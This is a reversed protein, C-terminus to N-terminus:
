FVCECPLLEQSLDFLLEGDIAKKASAWFTAAPIKETAPIGAARMKEFRGAVDQLFVPAGASDKHIAFGIYDEAELAKQWIDKRKCYVIYWHQLGGKLCGQCNAHTFSCYTLPPAIGIDETSDIVYDASWLLPYDTRWGMSGMISSRRQIRATENSDFGYYICDTEKDANDKLWAMFPATKLRNTCLMHAGNSFAGAHMCVDFQDCDVVDAGDINAFTIPTQLYDAVERKFRKIDAHEVRAAIDHNLLILGGTGYRRAVAIAARASSHGGFFCVIHRM